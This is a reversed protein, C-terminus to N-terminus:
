NLEWVLPKVPSHDTACNSCTAWVGVLCMQHQTHMSTHGAGLPTKDPFDVSPQKLSVLGPVSVVKTALLPSWELPPVGSSSKYGTSVGVVVSSYITHNHISGIGQMQTLFIFSSSLTSAGICQSM